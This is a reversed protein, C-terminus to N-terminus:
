QVAKKLAAKVDADQLLSIFAAKAAADGAGADAPPQPAPLTSSGGLRDEIDRFVRDLAKGALRELFMAGIASEPSQAAEPANLKAEMRDLQTKMADLKTGIDSPVTQDDAVAGNAPTPTGAAPSKKIPSLEAQQRTAAETSIPLGGAVAEGSGGGGTSASCCAHHGRWCRWCADAQSATILSLTSSLLLLRITNAM